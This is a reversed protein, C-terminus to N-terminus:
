RNDSDYSKLIRRVNLVVLTAGLFFAAIGINQSKFTQGFFSFETEGTAGMVVLVVGLVSLLSGFIFSWNTLLFLLPSKGNGKSLERAVKLVEEHDTGSVHIERKNNGRGYTVRAGCMPCNEGKINRGTGGCMHCMNDGNM